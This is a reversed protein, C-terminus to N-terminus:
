QCNLPKLRLIVIKFENSLHMVVDYVFKSLRKFNYDFHKNQGKILSMKDEFYKTIYKDVLEKIQAYDFLQYNRPESM